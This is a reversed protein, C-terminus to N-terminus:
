LTGLAFYGLQPDPSFAVVELDNEAEMQAVVKGNSSTTM